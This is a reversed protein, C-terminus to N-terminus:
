HASGYMEGGALAAKLVRNMRRRALGLTEGEVILSSPDISDGVEIRFHVRREPIQYWKEAKTLTSPASAITVPVFPRRSRVIITAAGRRLKMPQGPVTRTSEPFIVLNEGQELCAVCEEIFRVPDDNPIYGTAWMVGAMFPNSWAAEKVVCRAQPLMAILFVVDILSPHNAVILRNGEYHFKERGEVAYTLVGLARMTGIFLRFSLHVVHQCRRNAVQRRASVLHILPFLTVCLVLSGLGFLFFSIGTGFLRWYYNPSRM